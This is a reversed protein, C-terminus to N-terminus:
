VGFNSFLAHAGLTARAVCRLFRSTHRSYPVPVTTKVIRECGGIAEVMGMLMTEAQQLSFAIRLCLLRRPCDSDTVDPRSGLQM